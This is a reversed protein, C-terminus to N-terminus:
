ASDALEPQMDSLDITKILLEEGSTVKVRWDGCTRCLLRPPTAKSSEGCIQCEVRVPALKIVLEARSAITGARAVEFARELLPAEAGSLPGLLLEIRSVGRARHAAATREVTSILGQCLALEHM